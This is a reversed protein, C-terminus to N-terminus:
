SVGGIGRFGTPKWNDIDGLFAREAARQFAENITDVDVIIAQGRPICSRTDVTADLEAGTAKMDALRGEADAPHVFIRNDTM